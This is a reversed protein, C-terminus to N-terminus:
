GIITGILWLLALAGLMLRLFFLPGEMGFPPHKDFDNNQYKM